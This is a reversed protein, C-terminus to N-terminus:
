IIENFKDMIDETNNDFVYSKFEDETEFLSKFAEIKQGLEKGKLDPFREMIINGNFKSAIYKNREIEEKFMEFEERINVGFFNELNDLYETKDERNWNIVNKHDEIYDLFIVYNPRRKNRDKNISNLNEWQFSLYDFYRSGIVYDFMDEKEDFGEKWTEFDLGLFNFIKVPDKCLSISKNKGEYIFKCKLGDFGYKISIGIDRLRGYNNYLKGMFNGLDGNCFFIQSTIWNEKSTFILDVQLENYNFSIINSNTFIEVPNFENEIIERRNINIENELVLIDMDGFDQKNLYSTILFVETNFSKRVRPLIEEKYEFFINRNVRKAIKIAKGGM